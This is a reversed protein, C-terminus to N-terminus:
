RDNERPVFAMEADILAEVISQPFTDLYFRGCM